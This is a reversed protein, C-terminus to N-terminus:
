ELATGRILAGIQDRQDIENSAPTTQAPPPPSKALLTLFDESTILQEPKAPKLELMKHALSEVRDPSTVHSWETRMLALNDNEEAIARELQAAHDELQRTKFKMDYILVVLGALFGLSLLFLLRM